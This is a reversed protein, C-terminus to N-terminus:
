MSRACSVTIHYFDHNISSVREESLIPTYEEHAKQIAQAMRTKELVWRETGSADHLAEAFRFEDGTSLVNELGASVCECYVHGRGFKGNIQRNRTITECQSAFFRKGSALSQEPTMEPIFQQAVDGILMFGGLAYLAYKGIGM